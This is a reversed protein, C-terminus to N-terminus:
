FDQTEKTIVILVMSLIKQIVKPEFFTLLRFIDDNSLKLNFDKLDLSYGNNFINLIIEVTRKIM